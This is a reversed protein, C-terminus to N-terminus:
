SCNVIHKQPTYYTKGLAARIQEIVGVKMEGLYNTRTASALEEFNAYVNEAICLTRRGNLMYWRERTSVKYKSDTENTVYYVGDFDSLNYHRVAFPWLLPQVDIRGQWVTIRKYESFFFLALILFFATLVCGLVIAPEGVSGETLYEGIPIAPGVAVLVVCALALLPFWWVFKSRVERSPDVTMQQREPIRLAQRLEDFNEYASAKLTLVPQYDSILMLKMNSEEGSVLMYDFERFRYHRRAFPFLPSTLEIEDNWISVRKLRALWFLVVVLMAGVLIAITLLWNFSDNRVFTWLFAVEAFLTAFLDRRLTKLNFKSDITM